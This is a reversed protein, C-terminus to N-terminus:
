SSASYLDINVKVKVKIASSKESSVDNEDDDDAEHLHDTDHKINYPIPRYTTAFESELCHPRASYKDHIATLFLDKDSDEKTSIESYPKSVVVRHQKDNSDVYIVKRSAKKLYLSLLRYASEQASVEQHNLFTASVKKMQQKIDVNDKKMEQVVGKILEGMSQEGKCAYSVIYMVCAFDDTVFQLDMNARWASLRYSNYNNTWIDGIERKTVINYGIRTTQLTKIYRNETIELKNLRCLPSITLIRM